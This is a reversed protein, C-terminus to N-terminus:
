DHNISHGCVKQRRPQLRIFEDLERELGALEQDMERIRRISYQIHKEELRDFTTELVAEFSSERFDFIRPDGDWKLIVPKKEYIM